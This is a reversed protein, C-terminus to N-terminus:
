SKKKAIVRIYTENSNNFPAFGKKEAAYVVKFKNRELRELLENFNIFRRYHGDYVYAGEEGEVKEGMQYIENKEGRVEICFYGNPLLSNYAWSIVRKEGELQISHLTFRSYIIDYKNNEKLNTFDASQFTLNEFYKYKISLSEIEHECQDVAFTKLRNKAFFIADRGNGCGLELLSDGKKVYHKFVFKSFLSPEVNDNNSKSRYFKEWYKKDM